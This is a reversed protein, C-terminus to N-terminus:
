GLHRQQRCVTFIQNPTERARFFEMFADEEELLESGTTHGSSQEDQQECGSSVSLSNEELM